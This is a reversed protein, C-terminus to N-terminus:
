AWIFIWALIKGCVSEFRVVDENGRRSYEDLLINTETLVQCNADRTKGPTSVLAVDGSGGELFLSVLLSEGGTVVHKGLKLAMNPDVVPLIGVIVVSQGNAGAGGSGDGDEV